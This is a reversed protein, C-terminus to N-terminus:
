EFQIRDIYYAGYASDRAQLQFGDIMKGEAGIDKLPVEVIAWTKAKPKLLYEAAEIPKGDATAKVMLIQGGAGGGNIYFVLKSFGATSFPDHHLALASWPDGEVKIPKSGGAAASLVIKAWSWSTWGNKLEEDYVIFPKGPTQAFARTAICSAVIALFTRRTQMFTETPSHGRQQPEFKFNKNFQKEPLATM